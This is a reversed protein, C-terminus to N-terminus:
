LCYVLKFLNLTNKYKITVRYLDAYIPHSKSYRDGIVQVAQAYSPVQELQPTEIWRLSLNSYASGYWRFGKIIVVYKSIGFDLCVLDGQYLDRRM